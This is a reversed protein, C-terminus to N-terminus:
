DAREGDDDQYNLTPSAAGSIISPSSMRAAVTSIATPSIM